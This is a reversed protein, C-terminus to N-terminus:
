MISLSAAHLVRAGRQGWLGRGLRADVLELVMRALHATRRGLLEIVDEELLHDAAEPGGMGGVLFGLDLKEVRGGGSEGFDLRLVLDLAHEGGLHDRGM